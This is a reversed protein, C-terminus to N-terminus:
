IGIYCWVFDADGNKFSNRGIHDCKSRAAFIGSPLANVGFFLNLPMNPVIKIGVAIPNSRSDYLGFKWYDKTDNYTFRIQYPTGGFVVTSLSDNKDPVEIAIYEM